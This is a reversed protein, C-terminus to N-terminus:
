GPAQERLPHLLLRQITQEERGQFGRIGIEMTAHGARPQDRYTGFLRDWWPFNFGFNSNTEENIVSHHVRHMDPTVLFLRLFRDVRPPIFINGHNFMATANLIVEALLVAVAPPGLLVVVLMKILMSLIISLPHFRIGTSVDFDPDAHHMRHLRWLVPILHYLRHQWYITVDFLLIFLPISFQAPMELINFLGWNREAALLAVGVALLPFVLALLVSNLVSILWNNTWRLIKSLSLPRRPKFIEWSGVLLVILLFALLRITAHNDLTLSLM